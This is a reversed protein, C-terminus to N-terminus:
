PERTNIYKEDVRWSDNTMRFYKKMRKKLEPGFQHAWRMITTHSAPMGREKMMLVIDRYSLAFQCYWRVAWLTIENSFRKRKFLNEQSNNM